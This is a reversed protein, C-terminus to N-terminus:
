EHTKPYRGWFYRTEERTIRGFSEIAAKAEEYTEKSIRTQKYLGELARMPPLTNSGAVVPLEYTEMHSGEMAKVQIKIYALCDAKQPRLARADALVDEIFGELTIRVTGPKYSYKSMKLFKFLNALQPLKM